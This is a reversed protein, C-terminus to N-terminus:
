TKRHNRQNYANKYFTLENNKLIDSIIGSKGVADLKNVCSYGLASEVVSALHNFSYVEASNESISNIYSLLRKEASHSFQEPVILIVKEGNEVLKSIKQYVYESKGSKSRGTVIELSM